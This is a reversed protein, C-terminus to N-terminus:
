RNDKRVIQKDFPGVFSKTPDLAQKIDSIPTRNLVELLKKIYTSSINETRPLYIVECYVRLDDFRGEWDNGMGFISVGYRRIDDAKQEGNQLAIALNVCKLNRIIQIRNEFDFITQKGRLANFEDTTVGVVLEDGLAKLRNLLSLHGTHFLDFTGYTLVIKKM